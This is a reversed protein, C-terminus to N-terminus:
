HSRRSSQSSQFFGHGDFVGQIFPRRGATVDTMEVQEMCHRGRCAQLPRAIAIVPLGHVMPHPYDSPPPRHAMVLCWTVNETGGAINPFNSSAPVLNTGDSASDAPSGPNDRRHRVPRLGL